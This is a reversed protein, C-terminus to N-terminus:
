TRRMVVLMHDRLDALRRRRALQLGRRLLNPQHARSAFTTVVEEVVMGPTRDLAARTVFVVHEPYQAYWWGAGARRAGACTIDGTLVVLRGGPRLRARWGALARPVDYLHEIVDFATVLDFEGPLGELTAAVEHGRQQAVRRGDDSPEVGATTAGLLRAYDLLEGTNCGIDVVRRGGQVLRALLEVAARTQTVSFPDPSTWRQSGLGAAYLGLAVEEPIANQTFASGCGACRWLEPALALAIRHTSFETVRPTGLAGVAAVGGGCLPCRERRLDNRVPRADQQPQPDM